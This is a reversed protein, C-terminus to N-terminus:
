AHRPQAARSPKGTAFSAPALHAAAQMGGDEQELVKGTLNLSTASIRARAPGMEISVLTQGPEFIWAKEASAATSALVALALVKFGTMACLHWPRRFPNAVADRHSPNRRERHAALPRLPRSGRAEVLRRHPTKGRGHHVLVAVQGGPRVRAPRRSVSQKQLTAASGALRGDAAARHASGLRVLALRGPLRVLPEM